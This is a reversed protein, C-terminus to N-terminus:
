VKQEQLLTYGPLWHSAAFRTHLPHRDDGFPSPLQKPTRDNRGRKWPCSRTGSTQVFVQISHEPLMTKTRNQNAFGRQKGEYKLANWQNATNTMSWPTVNTTSQYLYPLQHLTSRLALTCVQNTVLTVTYCVFNRGCIAVDWRLKGSIEHRKTFTVAIEQPLCDAPFYM